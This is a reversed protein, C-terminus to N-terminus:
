DRAREILRLESRALFRDHRYRCRRPLRCCSGGREHDVAVVVRHGDSFPSAFLWVVTGTAADRVAHQQKSCEGSLQVEVRDGVRLALAPPEWPAEPNTM